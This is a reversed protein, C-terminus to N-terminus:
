SAHAGQRAKIVDLVKRWQAAEEDNGAERAKRERQGAEVAAKAGFAGILHSAYENIDAARM